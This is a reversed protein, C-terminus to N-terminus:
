ISMHYAAILYRIRITPLIFTSDKCRVCFKNAALHLQLTQIWASRREIAESLDNASQCSTTYCSYLKIDDANLKCM